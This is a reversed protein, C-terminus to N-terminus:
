YRCGNTRSVTVAIMERQARSLPESPSWMVRLYLRTSADLVEPQRSQAMIVNFVRGARAVAADYLKRLRGTADAPAVLDIWPM